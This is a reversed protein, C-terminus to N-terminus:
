VCIVSCFIYLHSLEVAKLKQIATQNEKSTQIHPMIIHVLLFRLLISKVARLEKILQADEQQKKQYQEVLSKEKVFELQLQEFRTQLDSGSKSKTNQIIEEKKDDDDDDNLKESEMVEITAQNHISIACKYKLGKRQTINTFAAGYNKGNVIYGISKKKMNVWLTVVDGENWHVGYDERTMESTKEWVSKDSRLAYRDGALSGFGRDSYLKPGNADVIGITVTTPWAKAM